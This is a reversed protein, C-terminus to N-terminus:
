SVPVKVVVKLDEKANDLAQCPRHADQPFFIAFHGSSLPLNIGSVDSQAICVDKEENFPEWNTIQDIPIYGIIEGEKIVYQIDIFKRHAEWKTDISAKLQPRQVMFYLDSDPIEYRGTEYNQFDTSVIFDIAKDLKESIGKYSAINRIHDYIM